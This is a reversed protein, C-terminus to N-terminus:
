FDELFVREKKTIRNGAPDTSQIVIENWGTRHVEIAKRFRGNNNTEVKTGNISVSAGVETQGDVIFLHGMQRIPAVDLVPPDVDRIVQRHEPSQIRFRRVSSWESVLQDEHVSALRWFYTGPHIAQLRASTGTIVPSDVDLEPAAFSKSRSVQLRFDETEGRSQWALEIIPQQELDFAANNVPSVLEPTVPIQQSETFSGEETAAVQQRTVLRVEEGERNRLLARGAFASVTTAHKEDDVDVAVRSDRGIRTEISDTEVISSSRGTSVNIKGVVMKVSGHDAADQLGHHIELLSNPAVHFLTGDSFLIEASGHGDTRVFDGNFVPMRPEANLWTAQGAHQISVRGHIAHFQGAGIASRAGAGALATFRARAHDAQTHAENFAERGYAERAHDLQEIAQAVEGKWSEPMAASEAREQAREAKRIARRAAVDPTPNMQHNVLLLLVAALVATLCVAVLKGITNIRIVVWDLEIGRALKPCVGWRVTVHQMELLLHRPGTGQTDFPGPSCQSGRISIM